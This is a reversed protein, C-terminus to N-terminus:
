WGPHEIRRALHEWNAALVLFSVRAGLTPAEKAREMMEKARKHFYDGPRAQDPDEMQNGVRLHM